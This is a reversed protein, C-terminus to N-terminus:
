LATMNPLEVDINKLNHECAGRVVIKDLEASRRRHPIRGKKKMASLKAFEATSTLGSFGLMVLGQRWLPRLSERISGCSSRAALCRGALRCATMHRALVGSVGSSESRARFLHNIREKGENREFPFSLIM